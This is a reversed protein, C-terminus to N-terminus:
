ALALANRAIIDDCLDVMRELGPRCALMQARAQAPTAAQISAMDGLYVQKAAAAVAAPADNELAIMAHAYLTVVWSFIERGTGEAVCAPVDVDLSPRSYVTVCNDGIFPTRLWHCAEDLTQHCHRSAVLISDDDLEAAGFLHLLRRQEEAMDYASFVDRAKVLAKKVTPNKLDALLVMQAMARVALCTVANLYILSDSREFASIVPLAHDRVSRCRLRVWHRRALEPAMVARLGDMIRDPDFLVKGHVVNPALRFDALLADTSLLWEHPVYFAEVAIGGYPRKCPRHRAPDVKPVVVVLDLDSSPSFPDEDALWNISGHTFVCLVEGPFRALEETVWQEAISRAQGANM